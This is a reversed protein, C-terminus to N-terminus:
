LIISNHVTLEEVELGDLPIDLSASSPAIVPKPSRLDREKTVRACEAKLARIVDDLAEGDDANAAYKETHYVNPSYPLHKIWFDAADIGLDKYLAYWDKIGSYALGYRTVTYSYNKDCVQFSVYDGVRYDRLYEEDDEDDEFYDDDLFSSEDDEDDEEEEEPEVYVKGPTPSEESMAILAEEADVQECKLKIADIIKNAAELDGYKFEPFGNNTHVCAYGIIKDIFDRRAEPTTYGLQVLITNNFGEDDCNLYKDRVTYRYEKGRLEFIVTSDLKYQYEPEVPKPPAVPVAEIEASVRRNLEHQIRDGYLQLAEISRFEPCNSELRCLDKIDRALYKKNLCFEREMLTEFSHPYDITAYYYIGRSSVLSLKYQKDRYYLTRYNPVPTDKKECLDYLANIVRTLDHLSRVEPFGGGHTEIGLSRVFACKDAIGLSEFIAHNEGTENTIYSWSGHCVSYRFVKGDPCNFTFKEGHAVTRGIIKLM